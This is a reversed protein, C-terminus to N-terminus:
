ADFMMLLFRLMAVDIFMLALYKMKATRGTCKSIIYPGITICNKERYAVSQYNETAHASNLKQVIPLVQTTANAIM